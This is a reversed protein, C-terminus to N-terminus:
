SRNAARNQAPKKAVRTREAERRERGEDESGEQRRGLAQCSRCETEQNGLSEEVSRSIDSMPYDHRKSRSLEELLREELYRRNPLSTLPDTISMLQFETAREQWEARELAVAVQPGILELLSLDVQDYKGGGSKDTVNLVGIKRGGITIEHSVTTGM